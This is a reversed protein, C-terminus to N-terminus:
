GNEIYDGSVGYCNNAVYDGSVGYGNNAVYDGSVGYGNNAVYDGSVGYGSSNGSNAYSDGYSNAYNSYSDGYASGDTQCGATTLSLGALGLGASAIRKLAERRTPRGCGSIDAAM